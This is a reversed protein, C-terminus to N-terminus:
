RAYEDPYNDPYKDLYKDHAMMICLPTLVSGFLLSLVIFPLLSLMRRCVDYVVDHCCPIHFDFKMSNSGEHFLVLRAAFLISSVM